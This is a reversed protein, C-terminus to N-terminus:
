RTIRAASRAPIAVAASRPPLDIPGDAPRWEADDVLRYALPVDVGGIEVPVSQEAYNAVAVAPEGTDRHLFVAYPHHARGGGSRVDAGITDRFTGDWFWERLETRLADMQQGYGVTRPMDPIRGKFNFPEYSILYRYLLCQNIINRDEFGTAATMLAAHPHLYRNLPLHAASASRFYSLHYQEFEWDYLGEGCYLFEPSQSTQERFRRILENDNAYVPWPVPHGHADDFCLLADAHHQCEDFLMGAAGLGAVTAFEEQCTALYRESGFCMPILRRTNIGLLQTATQYRYGAGNYPDGYPDKVTDAALAPYRDTTRDAWTFKCFLVVRVGFNQIQAIADRLEDATGLRPDPQHSPNGRDQGGHNWGVLQIARVGAEACERGVEPLDRFPIRLEDEPSNIHLQLWSGPEDAWAPATPAPLWRERWRRYIDAGAHWDGTFPEITIPTLTRSTGPAIFPLHVTSFRIRADPAPRGAIADDFGPVLESHWSVLDDRREAVGTYLGQDRALILMFPSVPTVGASSGRSAMQTPHDVGWYGCINEFRPWMALQAATGYSYCFSRLEEDPSPPRLDGLCPAWVNEVVLGSRNDITTEFLVRRPGTVSIRQTVGIPHVGGHESRVQRWSLTVGSHGARAIEPPGQREGYALNDRRGPLPILLRFGAALEPRGSGGTVLWGTEAMRLWAIAGTRPDIALRIGAGATRIEDSALLLLDAKAM